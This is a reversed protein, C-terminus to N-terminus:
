CKQALQEFLPAVSVQDMGIKKAKNQVRYNTFVGVIVPFKLHRAVDCGVMMM